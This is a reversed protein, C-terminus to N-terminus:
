YLYPEDNYGLTTRATDSISGMDQRDVIVANTVLSLDAYGRTASTSGGTASRHTAGKTPLDGAADTISGFDSLERLDISRRVKVKLGVGVNNTIMGRYRAMNDRGIYSLFSPYERDYTNIM